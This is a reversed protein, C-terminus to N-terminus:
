GMPQKMKKQFPSPGNKVLSMIRNAFTNKSDECLHIGDKLQLDGMNIYLLGKKMSVHKLYTNFRRINEDTDRSVKTPALSPIIIKAGPIQRRTAEILADMDLIATVDQVRVSNDAAQLIVFDWKDEGIFPIRSTINKILAGSYALSSASVHSKDCRTALGKVCSDGIFLVNVRRNEKQDNSCQTAANKLVKSKTQTIKEKKKTETQSAIHKVSVPVTQTYGTKQPESETQTTKSSGTITKKAEYMFFSELEAVSCDILCFSNFPEPEVLIPSVNPILLDLSLESQVPTSCSSRPSCAPSRHHSKPTEAIDCVGKNLHRPRPSLTKSGDPGSCDSEYVYINDRKKRKQKRLQM